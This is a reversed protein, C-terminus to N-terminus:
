FKRCSARINDKRCKKLKKLDAAAIKINDPLARIIGTKRAQPSVSYVVWKGHRESVVLGAGSLTKMMRSIRAQKMALISVLECVCIDGNLLLLFIRLRTKDSLAAFIKLTSDM